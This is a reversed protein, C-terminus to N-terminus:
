LHKFLSTHCVKDASIVKIHRLCDKDSPFQTVHQVLLNVVKVHGKRFAAMLCSVKRNDQSNVDAHAIILSEVVDLHGGTPNPPHPSPLFLVLYDNHTLAWTCANSRTVYGHHSVM